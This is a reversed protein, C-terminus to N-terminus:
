NENIANNIEINTLSKLTEEFITLGNQTRILLEFNLLRKSSSFLLSELDNYDIQINSYDEFNEIMSSLNQHYLNIDENIKLFKDYDSSCLLSNFWFIDESDNNIPLFFLVYRDTKWFGASSSDIKNFIKLVNIFEQYLGVDMNTVIIDKIYNNSFQLSALFRVWDSSNNLIKALNNADLFLIQNNNINGIELKLIDLKTYKNLQEYNKITKFEVINIQADNDNIAYNHLEQFVSSSSSSQNQDQNLNKSIYEFNENIPITFNYNTGVALYNSNNENMLVGELDYLFYGMNDFEKLNNSALSVFAKKEYLITQSFILLGLRSKTRNIQHMLQLSDFNFLNNLLYNGLQKIDKEYESKLQEKLIIDDLKEILPLEDKLTKSYNDIVSNLGSDIVNIDMFKHEDNYNNLWKESINKLEKVKNLTYIRSSIIGYGDKQNEKTHEVSNKALELLGYSVDKTYDIIRQLNLAYFDIFKSKLFRESNKSSKYNILKKKEQSDLLFEIKNYMKSLSTPIKFLDSNQIVLSFIYVEVDSFFFVENTELIEMVRERFKKENQRDDKSEIISLGIQYTSKIGNINNIFYRLIYLESLAKIFYLTSLDNSEWNEIKSKNDIFLDQIRNFVPDKQQSLIIADSKLQRIEYLLNTKYSTSTNKRLFLKSITKENIVLPPMYSVSQSIKNYVFESNNKYIKFFIKKSNIYLHTKHHALKFLYSNANPTEIFNNFHFEIEVNPFDLKFLTLYSIFLLDFDEEDQYETRDINLKLKRVEEIYEDGIKEKEMLLLKFDNVFYHIFDANIANQIKVNITKSISNYQSFIDSIM